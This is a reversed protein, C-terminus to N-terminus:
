AQHLAARKKELLDRVSEGADISGIARARLSVGAIEGSLCAYGDIAKDPFRLCICAKVWLRRRVRAHGIGAAFGLWWFISSTDIGAAFGLWWSISSTGIGAAFGLGTRVTTRGIPPRRWLRGLISPEAICAVFVTAGRRGNVRHSTFDM